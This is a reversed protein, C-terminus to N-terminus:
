HREAAGAQGFVPRWGALRPISAKNLDPDLHAHTDPKIKGGTLDNVLAGSPFIPSAVKGVSADFGKRSLIIKMLIAADDKSHEILGCANGGNQCNRGTRQM